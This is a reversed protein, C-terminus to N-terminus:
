HERYLAYDAIALLCEKARSPPFDNLMTKAEEMIEKARTLSSELTNYKNFLGMIYDLDSEELTDSAIIKSVKSYESQDAERLLYIVPLTIKGEALDKGLSKGLKDEAAKYDLLDDAIQFAMGLNLGFGALAEEQWSPSDALIPGMRCAASMLAATKGKVIQLYDKETISPDGIRSLQLLEAETMRTTAESLTNMIKQSGLSVAIRLANSYMFDGVLVIVENGWVSHAAPKGRRVVADDVIDDHLLSATHISEIVSGLVRTQEGTYDSIESGLIVLFPRLRKGGDLLYRGIAPIQPVPSSLDKLIQEEVEDLTPRYLDWIEQITMGKAIM